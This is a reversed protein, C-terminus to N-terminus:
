QWVGEGSTRILLESPDRGLIELLSSLNNMMESGDIILMNVKNALLDLPELLVQIEAVLSDVSVALEPAITNLTLALRNLNQGLRTYTILLSDLNESNSLISDEIRDIKDSSLIRNTNKLLENLQESMTKLDVENTIETIRTIMSTISQMAGEEVPIVQYEVEFNFRRHHHVRISDTSLNIVQLGTIGIVQMTAVITSDVLFESRIKMVVEVLRGDPAIDISEVHGISVGNYMVNSGENLGQVSWSFYSVYTITSREKFGGGLWIILFITFLIGISFFIGLKFKNGTMSM